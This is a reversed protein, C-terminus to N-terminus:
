LEALMRTLNGVMGALDRVEESGPMKEALRGVVGDLEAIMCRKEHDRVMSQVWFM